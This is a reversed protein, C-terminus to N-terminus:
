RRAQMPYTLVAFPKNYVLVAYMGTILHAEPSVLFAVLSAVDKTTGLYGVASM